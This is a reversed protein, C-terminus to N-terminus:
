ENTVKGVISDKSYSEPGNEVFTFKEALFCHWSNPTMIRLSDHPKLRDFEPINLTLVIHVKEFVKDPIIQLLQPDDIGITIYYNKSCLELIKEAEIFQNNKIVAPQNFYIHGYPTLNIKDTSNPSGNHGIFLTWIGYLRGEVEPGQYFETNYIDIM